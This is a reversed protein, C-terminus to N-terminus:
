EAANIFAAGNEKSAQPIAKETSGSFNTLGSKLLVSIRHQLGAVRFHMPKALQENIFLQLIVDITACRLIKEQGSKYNCKYILWSSLMKIVM